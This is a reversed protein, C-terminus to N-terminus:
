WQKKNIITVRSTEQRWIHVLDVDDGALRVQQPQYARGQVHLVEEGDGAVLQGDHLGVGLVGLGEGDVAEHDSRPLGDVDEDLGVLGDVPVVHRHPRVHGGLVDGELVDGGNGVELVGSGREVVEAEGGLEGDVVVVEDDVGVQVHEPAEVGGVEGGLDVGVEEEGDAQVHLFAVRGVGVLAALSGAAADERRRHVVDTEDLRVDREELGVVVVDITQVRVVEGAHRELGVVEDIARGVIDGVVGLGQDPGFHLDELVPAPHLEDQLVGAGHRGLVVRDMEMAVVEINHAVSCPVVVGHTRLEVQNIRWVHVGDSHRDSSPGGDPEDGVIWTSSVERLIMTRVGM